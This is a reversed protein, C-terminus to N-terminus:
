GGLDPQRGPPAERLQATVPESAPGVHQQPHLGLYDRHCSVERLEDAGGNPKVQDEPHRQERGPQDRGDDRKHDQPQLLAAAATELQRDDGQEHQDARAEAVKEEGGSILVVALEGGAECRARAPVRLRATPMM